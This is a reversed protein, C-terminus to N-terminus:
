GNPTPNQSGSVTCPFKTQIILLFHHFHLRLGKSTRKQRGRFKRFCNNGLFNHWAISVYYMAGGTDKV